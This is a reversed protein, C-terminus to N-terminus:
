MNAFSQRPAQHPPPPPSSHQPHQALQQALPGLFDLAKDALQVPTIESHRVGNVDYNSQGNSGNNGNPAFRYMHLARVSVVLLLALALSGVVVILLHETVKGTFVPSDQETTAYFSANSHLYHSANFTINGLSSM